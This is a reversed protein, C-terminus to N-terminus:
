GRMSLVSPRLIYRGSHFGRSPPPAVWEQDAKSDRFMCPLVSGTVESSARARSFAVGDPSV